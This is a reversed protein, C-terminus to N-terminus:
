EIIPVNIHEPLVTKRSSIGQLFYKIMYEKNGRRFHIICDILPRGPRDDVSWFSVPLGEKKLFAWVLLRGIHGNGNAYPHIALFKVFFYSLLEVYKLVKVSDPIKIEKIKKFYTDLLKELELSYNDMFDSVNAAPYGESQYLRVEYDVLFEYPAGRYNGAFYERGKPTTDKFIEKHAFRTDLIFSDRESEDVSFLLEISKCNVTVSECNPHDECDWGKEPNYEMGFM